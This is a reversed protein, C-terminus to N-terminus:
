RVSDTDLPFPNEIISTHTESKADVAEATTPEDHMKEKAGARKRAFSRKSLGPQYRYSYYQDVRCM